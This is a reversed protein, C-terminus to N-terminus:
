KGVRITGDKLESRDTNGIKSELSDFVFHYKIVSYLRLIKEKQKNNM